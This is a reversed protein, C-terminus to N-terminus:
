LSAQTAGERRENIGGASGHQGTKGTLGRQRDALKRPRKRDLQRCDQFVEIDQCISSQHGTVFHPTRDLASQRTAGQALGCPPEFPRGSKPIRSEVM